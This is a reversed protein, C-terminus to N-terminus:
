PSSILDTYARRTCLHHPTVQANRNPNEAKQKAMWEAGQKSRKVIGQITKVDEEPIEDVEGASIASLRELLGDVAVEFSSTNSM